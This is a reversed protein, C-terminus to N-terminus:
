IALLVMQFTVLHLNGFWAFKVREASHPSFISLLLLVKKQLTTTSPPSFHMCQFAKGACFKLTLGSM